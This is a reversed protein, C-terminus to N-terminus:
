GELTLLFPHELADVVWRLFRAGDAGDIVRHDYSLALPLMNRPVFAGDQYVPEIRSRAVGLIAVEPANIIPTFGTGGIGGLNSVTMSGGQMEDLGLKRERTRRAMENLEVSIEILNKQDVNRIVPVMLGHETDVAVGIHCYKKYVIERKAMDVSSNFQPFAKLAATVVKLLIATITLKGGAAEARPAYRIRLAELDTIDAKDFQTVHPAQAWVTGLREATTRRIGSMRERHVEGWQSFDPLPMEPASGAQPVSRPEERSRRAYARVDEISIRGNPGSGHVERIDVGIERAFRRTSPAAAVPQVDDTPQAAGDVPLAAPATQLAAPVTPAQPAPVTPADSPPTPAAPPEAPPEAPTETLPAANEAQGSEETTAEDLTFILQGSSIEDGEKVHIETVTGDSDAPVEAIAKDTEVELVPQGTKVADGVSVAVKVVVGKGTTEGLKPLKFQAAM